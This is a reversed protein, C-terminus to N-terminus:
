DRRLPIVLDKKFDAIAEFANTAPNLWVTDEIRVGFGREPYYLGPEITVVTGPKLTETNGEYESLGPSEHINLGVGHGLGHVYGQTTQPHSRLTPHGRAEFFDNAMKQYQACGAGPKLSDGVIDFLELVEGHVKEVEPPAHGVCWTRTFDFFYGGGAECPFIDYVITQGLAIPASDEGRSHPVGADRGAAFIFDEPAELQHEMLWRRIQRKVDGVTLPSGDAKVLVGDAARHGALFDWTDGVIAVTKEGVRRIREVEPADKTAWAASFITRRYEGTIQIEPRRAMFANWLLLSEGQDARGYVAVRGKVGLEDLMMELLRVQMRLWDGKEESLLRTPEFQNRDIVRLGSRAVEDREMSNVFVIPAEDRKKILVTLAGAHAGGLMYSMAPNAHTPGTILLADFNREAMLRDLDSKM